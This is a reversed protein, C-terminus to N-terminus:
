WRVTLQREVPKGMPPILVSVSKSGEAPPTLEFVTGRPTLNIRDQGHYAWEPIYVRSPAVVAPDEKWRCTFTAAEPDAHYALLTGAIRQPIPRQLAQLYPSTDLNRRFLWYTDGCLLKEFQRVVFWAAPVVDTGARGYAGWEGVIMPMDLRRATEGHRSFILEVREESASAIDGTDVVIDYGHPTYAQLPDRTGDPGLVPEIASYVGMNASMATELFIIHNKDVQRIADTVRQFMPMVRAREFEAFVAQGADIAPVYVEMDRLMRMLKSRGKRDLWMKMLDSQAPADEGYKEAMLQAAKGMVLVLGEVTASGGGPENFVDYGLVAPEDAYRQAVHRWALAFRDQIGVGDPGPKNDWFNDFARKVAPSTLYADSWVTGVHVHPEGDTLTAWEPAGDSYLVSFLDQHMDLMVYIGHEKAWAIRKDVNSLYEDDYQGPEPELGDWLIGLRVCNMGWERMAAFETPGHWSQYGEAKSKSIVNLGHLLVQRGDPDVFKGDSVSVFRTAHIPMDLVPKSGGPATAVDSEQNGGCSAAVALVMLATAVTGGRQKVHRGGASDSANPHVAERWNDRSQGSM